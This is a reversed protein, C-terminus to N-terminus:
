SYKICCLVFSCDIKLINFFFWILYSLFLYGIGFDDLVVRVGLKCIGELMKMVWSIDELLVIEIIEM